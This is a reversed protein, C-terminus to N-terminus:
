DRTLPRLDFPYWNRTKRIALSAAALILFLANILLAVRVPKPDFIFEVHRVPAPSLPVTIFTRFGTFHAVPRGDLKVKWYPYDNQLFTLYRYGADRVTVDLRGPGFANVHLANSDFRTATGPITDKSLFIWSQHLIFHLRASDNFFSVATNLEVPYAEEEPYGIKKSYSGLLILDKFYAADLFRTDKLAKQEQAHIGKPGFSILRQRNARSAMGLGTYPLIAWCTLVLNVAIVVTTKTKSPGAWALGSLTLILLISQLFLLDWGTFGEILAKLQQKWDGTSSYHFLISDQKFLMLALSLLLTFICLWGLPRLLRAPGGRFPAASPSTGPGPRRSGPGPHLLGLDPQTNCFRDLGAAGALIMPLLAFYSFEGNLRVYGILPLFYYAWTKFWGGASLLMFFLLVFVTFIVLKKNGYRFFLFLGALLYIGLWTNRMAIDSNSFSSNQVVFPFLLSVYSSIPTPALLAQQLSVKQGRSIHQLVDINSTLVVISLLVAVALFIGNVLWFRRHQFPLHLDKHLLYIGLFTFLFFYLAGIVLGPHTSSLFLMTCIGGLIFNKLTPNKHSRIFNLLVYPFFATGTIWVFHQLHGLIYGSTMYSLGAIVATFKTIGMEKCLLYIGTGGLLVYFMEELTISWISYGMTKAIIWLFPNWYGGNMDGYQPNGFNIYPNWWPFYGSYISESIVFRTPLNQTVLDNKIHFFPLFVPLYAALLFLIFLLFPHEKIFAVTKRM